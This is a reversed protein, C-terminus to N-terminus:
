LSLLDKKFHSLTYDKKKTVANYIKDEIGGKSFIWYVNNKLSDKTTMRDRSQWYSTASFDINYYILCQAKKLSIGERGSVIQLAISKDTDNFVSLETTISDKYISKLAELEEKFKYFIGVKMNKFENRIFEAKSYDIVASAGGEFKVTGSYIQHLKSMLKVPTDALIVEEKGEVVLSNKLEKAIRYTQKLMEVYLVKEVTDVKFGAEKQSYSITYPKMDELINISGRTYDRIRLSNIIREKVDVYKDCFRYFSKYQNFPNNPIGYVQHYMQSYSEPTPTGSLLIVKAKNKIIIMRVDKARKSPKPFAGLSHAEDLIIFDWKLETPIKHLSEYNITHLYFSPKLLNYDNDISSIAKKKTVFLVNQTETFSNAIGLATLTKGTRVEMALYVFSHKSLVEVSKNIINKQYDRYNM